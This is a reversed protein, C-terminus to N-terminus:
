LLASVAKSSTHNRAMIVPYGGVLFCKVDGRACINTLLPHCFNNRTLAAMTVAQYPAKM